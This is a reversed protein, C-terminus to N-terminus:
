VAAAPRTPADVPGPDHEGAEPMLLVAGVLFCLAGASTGANAIAASVPENTSPEVLAAVASVGFAVSGLLNLAAIRWGLSPRRRRAEAFAIASAVLFCISGFANPTWVRLDTQRTDLGRKMAEFTSVNFLLTGVLQVAAALWDPRAPAWSAPRWGAGARDANVADAYQLYGASTFFISGVFFTMGIGPRSVSAWQSAMSAVLFCVSGVAFLAGIWWAM